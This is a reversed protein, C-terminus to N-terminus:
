RHSSALAYGGATSKTTAPLEIVMAVEQCFGYRPCTVCDRWIKEPIDTPATAQFGLKRFFGPVLTLAFVKSIGAESARRTLAHVLERGVGRGHVGPATALCCIEALSDSYAQLSGCGVVQNDSEAVVYTDLSTRILDSSRPLMRGLAAHHMIIATISEVDAIGAPRIIM